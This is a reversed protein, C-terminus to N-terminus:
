PKPTAQKVAEAIAERFQLMEAEKLFADKSVPVYSPLEKHKMMMVGTYANFRDQRNQHSMDKFGLEKLLALADTRSVKAISGNLVGDVTEKRSLKTM